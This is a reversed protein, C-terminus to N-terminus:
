EVDNRLPRSRVDDSLLHSKMVRSIYDYVSNFYIDRTTFDWGRESSTRLRESRLSTINVESQYYCIVYSALQLLDTSIAAYMLDIAFLNDGIPRYHLKSQKKKKPAM